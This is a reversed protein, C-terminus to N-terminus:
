YRKPVFPNDGEIGLLKIEEGGLIFVSNGKNKIAEKTRKKIWNGEWHLSVKILGNNIHVRDIMIDLDISDFDDMNQSVADRLEQYGDKFDKSVLDMFMYINKSYYTKNFEDILSVVKKTRTFEEPPKVKKACGSIFSGIILVIIFFYRILRKM